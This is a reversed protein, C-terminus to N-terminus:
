EGYASCNADHDKHHIQLFSYWQDFQNMIKRRCKETSLKTIEIKKKWERLQSCCAKYEETENEICSTQPDKNDQKLRLVTDRSTNAREGLQKAYSIAAKLEMLDNALAAKSACHDEFWKYAAIPDDLTHRNSPPPVGFLKTQLIKADLARHRARQRRKESEAWSEDGRVIVSSALLSSADHQSSPATSNGHAIIDTKDVDHDAASLAVWISRNTVGRKGVERKEFMVETTKVEDSEFPLTSTKNNM